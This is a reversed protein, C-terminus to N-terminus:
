RKSSIINYIFIGAAVSANLSNIHGRMPLKIMYDCKKAVLQSIGKGESGIILAVNRDYPVENYYNPASADTGYIWYGQDKLKDITQALNTVAAVKVYELAGSAIKAVTANLGLGHHERYIIGDVGACDCTRIIAGLNQHDEIGDLIVILGNEKKILDKLEYHQYTKVKAVMGQHNAGRTMRDLESRKKIIVKHDFHMKKSVEEIVYLEIVRGNKLAENIANRGYILESM